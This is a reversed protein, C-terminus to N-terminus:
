HLSELQKKKMQQREVGGGGADDSPGVGAVQRARLERCASVRVFPFDPRVALRPAQARAM